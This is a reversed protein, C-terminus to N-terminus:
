FFFFRFFPFFVPNTTMGNELPDEQGSISGLDGVFLLDHSVKLGTSFLPFVAQLQVSATREMKQFVFLKLDLLGQHTHERPM